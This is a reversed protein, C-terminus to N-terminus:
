RWGCDPAVELDCVHVEPAAFGVGLEEVVEVGCAAEVVLDTGSEETQKQPLEGTM